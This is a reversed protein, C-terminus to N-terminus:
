PIATAEQVVIEAHMGHWACVYHYTGPTTVKLRVARRKVFLEPATGSGTPDEDFRMQHLVASRNVWVVMDGPAVVVRAPVFIDVEAEVVHEAAMARGSSLALLVTVILAMAPTIKSRDM